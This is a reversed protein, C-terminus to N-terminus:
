KSNKKDVNKGRKLSKIINKFENIDSRYFLINISVVIFTTIIMYIIANISWEIFNTYNTNPLINCIILTLTTEIIILIIKKYSDFTPRHLIYKNAHYIFEITRISMAIITGIAVGILGFYNVLIISTIINTICEIWAGKKTERFHGAAKILGNYPQRIAWVYESIVILTGFIPQIYNADTIGQTFLAVFPTILIIACTFVITSASFYLSEYLSFKRLLNNKENKAIMDGFIADTNDVLAFFLSRLAKIVLNYVSYISVESLSRFITLVTIDTNGHIVTAVHQALGDWKQKIAYNGNAENLKLKYKKKIYTNQILPRLVFILGSVLKIIQVNAGLITLLIVAVTSVIYLIVQIISTVYSKQDAQLFIRYSMGFFYEAFTSIGIIAILSITFLTDFSKDIILPYIIFLTVIYLVFIIAIKRFFKESTKIINAITKNDQKAIPRYLLAKVVPGFGSELLTIYALFQTISAILGNIDSGFKNIIIKPILFGYIISVLQLLINAIINTIAKRSRM